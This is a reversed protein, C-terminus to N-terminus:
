AGFRQKGQSDRPREGSGGAVSAGFAMAAAIVGALLLLLGFGISLFYDVVQPVRSTNKAPPSFWYSVGRDLWWTVAALAFGAFFFGGAFLWCKRAFSRTRM